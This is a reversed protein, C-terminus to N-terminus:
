ALSKATELSARHGQMNSSKSKGLGFHHAMGVVVLALGVGRFWCRAKADWLLRHLEVLRRLASTGVATSPVTAIPSPLAKYTDM